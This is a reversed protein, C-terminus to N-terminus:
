QPLGVRRLNLQPLGLREILISFRPDESLNEMTPDVQLYPMNYDRLRYGEELSAFAQDMRGLAGWVRAVHTPSVYRRSCLEQLQKVIREAKKTNGMGAHTFGILSLVFANDNELSWAKNLEVLAQDPDGTRELAISLDIYAFAFHPDLDLTKRVQRIAEEYRRAFLFATGIEEDIILSLPDLQQARRLEALGEDFKGVMALARGYGQHATAYNPSLELARKFEAEGAPWNWDYWIHILGLTAHADALQSDIELAKTAAGKAKVYSEAPSAMGFFSALVYSDALGAHARAYNPDKDIAQNFCEISKELSEETM